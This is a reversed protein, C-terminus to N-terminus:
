VIGRQPELHLTERGKYVWSFCVFLCGFICRGSDLNIKRRLVYM